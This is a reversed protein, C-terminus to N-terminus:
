GRANKRNVENSLFMQKSFFNELNKRFVHYSLQSMAQVLASYKEDEDGFEPKSLKQIVRDAPFHTGATHIKDRLKEVGQVIEIDAYLHATHHQVKGDRAM